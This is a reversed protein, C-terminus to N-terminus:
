EEETGFQGCKDVLPSLKIWGRGGCNPCMTRLREIENALKWKFNDKYYHDDMRDGDCEAEHRLWRIGEDLIDSM